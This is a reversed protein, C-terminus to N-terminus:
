QRDGRPVTLTFATGGEPASAVRVAGGHAQAVQKVIALGMGSGPVHGAQSGRYFREFLRSQEHEPIAPGSNRVTLEVTGNGEAAVEIEATPPSYKVANDLLQRLALGLLDRDVRVSLSPPVRNTVRHGELRPEFQRLTWVVVEALNCLSPRLQIDGSDVRVMQVADTM